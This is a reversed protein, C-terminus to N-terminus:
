FALDLGGECQELARGGKVEQKAGSQCADSRLDKNPPMWEKGKISKVIREGLPRAPDQTRLM